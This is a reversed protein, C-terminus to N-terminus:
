TTREQPAPRFTERLFRDRAANSFQDANEIASEFNFIDNQEYDRFRSLSWRRTVPNERDDFDVVLRRSYRGSRGVPHRLWKKPLRLSHLGGTANVIINPNCAAPLRDLDSRTCIGKLIPGDPPVIVQQRGDAPNEAVADLVCWTPLIAALEGAQTSDAAVVLVSMPIHPAPDGSIWEGVISGTCEAHQGAALRMAMNAILRNRAPNLQLPRLIEGPSANASINRFGNRNRISLWSVESRAYGSKSIRVRRIGFVNVLQHREPTSLQKNIPLLAYHRFGVEDGVLFQTNLHGQVLEPQTCLVIDFKSYETGETEHLCGAGVFTAFVLQARVVEEEDVDIDLCDSTRESSAANTSSIDPDSERIRACLRALPECHPGLVLVRADPFGRCVDVIVEDQTVGQGMEITGWPHHHLMAGISRYNMDTVQPSPLQKAVFVPSELEVGTQEALWMLPEMLGCYPARCLTGEVYLYGPDTQQPYVTLLSRESMVLAGDVTKLTPTVLDGICETFGAPPFIQRSKARISLQERFVNIDAM